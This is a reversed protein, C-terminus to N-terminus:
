NEANKPEKENKLLKYGEPAPYVTGVLTCAEAEDRSYYKAVLVLGRKVGLQRRERIKLFSAQKAM